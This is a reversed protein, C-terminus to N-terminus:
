RQDARALSRAFSRPCVCCPRSPTLSRSTPHMHLPPSVSSVPSVPSVPSIICRPTSAPPSQSRVQQYLKDRYFATSKKDDDDISPRVIREAVREATPDHFQQIYRHALAGEASVRKEPEFHLLAIMLDIADLSADKFVARFQNEMYM